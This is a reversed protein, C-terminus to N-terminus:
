EKDETPETSNFREQVLSWLKVLDDRDFTKLMDEFVQYVETHNGVRIIKWYMRSDETYVERDIIPYKTQLAEINIWEEPVIIMLQQLEEQSLEDSKKKKSSQQGLEEEAARKTSGAAIKPVIKNYHIAEWISQALEDDAEIRAQIDEWEVESFSRAVKHVRAIRQREEEDFEEQLRVVTELGLREQEQQRKNEAAIDDVSCWDLKLVEPIFMSRSLSKFAAGYVKKTQTLDIELAVVIDSLKTVLDMLENHQMRGKDSGLINVRPLPSDHLMTPTKDINGSGQGAKLSTVTIAAGGYRADVGISAAENAVNTHPPSNRNTALCIIATAINSSFQEWVTKKSSLCHLITHILFRWQPSFHGKQFTLKDSNSLYVMLALQEFIKTTPFNSVCDSDELKLHRRISAKTVIKVKGDITATIEVEGNDLISATTTQWFQQILSVYITTNKTLAYRIHSTNLFDVIQHFGKSDETKKLYAVM